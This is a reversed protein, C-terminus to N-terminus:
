FIFIVVIYTSRIANIRIADISAHLAYNEINLMFKPYM